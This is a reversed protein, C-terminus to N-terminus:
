KKGGEKITRDNSLLQYMAVGIISDLPITYAIGKGNRVKKFKESLVELTEKVKDERIFSIIVSKDGEAVGLLARMQSSATGHGYLVMQVNIEFSELLDEYFMTKSRDVVTILIKLKRVNSVEKKNEEKIASPKKTITEAVKKILRSPM